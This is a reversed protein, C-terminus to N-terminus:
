GGRRRFKIMRPMTISPIEILAVPRRRHCRHASDHPLSTVLLAGDDSDARPAPSQEPVRATPRCLLPVIRGFKSWRRPARSRCAQVDLLKGGLQDGLFAFRVAVASLVFGALAPCRFLGLHSSGPPLTALRDLPLVTFNYLYVVIRALPSFAAVMAHHLPLCDQHRQDTIVCTTEPSWSIAAELLRDFWVM